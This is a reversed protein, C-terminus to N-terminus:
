SREHDPCTAQVGPSRPRAASDTCRGAPDGERGSCSCAQGRSPRLPRGPDRASRGRCGTPEERSAPLSPEVRGMSINRQMRLRIWSSEPVRVMVVNRRENALMMAAWGSTVSEGAREDFGGVEGRLDRGVVM